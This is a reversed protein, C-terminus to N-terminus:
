SRSLRGARGGRRTTPAPSRSPLEAMITKRQEPTMRSWDGIEEISRACGLCLRTDPHIQCVQTCPSDIEDRTWIPDSM